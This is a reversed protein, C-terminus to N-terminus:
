DIKINQALKQNLIKCMFERNQNRINKGDIKKNQKTKLKKCVVVVVVVLLLLLLLRNLTIM